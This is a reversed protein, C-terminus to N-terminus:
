FVKAHRQQHSTQGVLLSPETIPSYGVGIENGGPCTGPFLSAIIIILM